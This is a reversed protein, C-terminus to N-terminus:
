KIKKDEILVGLSVLEDRLKDALAWNKEIRAQQRADILKQIEESYDIKKEDIGSINIGIIHQLIWKVSAKIQLDQKILELNGFILGFAKPTNLDDSIAGIIEDCLNNKGLVYQQEPTEILLRCLKKYAVGASILEDFSFDLPTRYHHQLYYFRVVEAKEKEFLANLTITNGLSKSMKEKNINVFANHSWLKVFDKRHLAESQAKENEHHPFILDQGGGHVDLTEGLYKKAMVSCEIHWGPRGKGWPSEWGVDNSSKWLAFDHPNKKRTDVQVRVGQKLDDLNRGSLKGYSEFSDISFYVDDDVRYACGTTILKEIFDIILDINETVKPEFSPNLCNLQQMNKQFSEYFFNAISVFSSADNQNRAKTILKDDVDTINRVYCVNKGLFTLLRVLVDYTVYVRGHGIHAYDYPTIGCVYLSIKGERCLLAEKKSSQTNTLQVIMTSQM